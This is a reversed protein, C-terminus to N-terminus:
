QLLDTPPQVVRLHLTGQGLEDLSVPSSDPLLRALVEPDMWANRPLSTVAVVRYQSIPLSDM